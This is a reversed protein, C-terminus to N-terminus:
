VRGHATEAKWRAAARELRELTRERGLLWMVEFIGPSVKRGTLAVRAMGIIEGAKIALEAALSRTERELSELTFEPLAGLSRALAELRAGAEARELLEAWSAHDEEPLDGLAWAGYREADALTRLRDGIARVLARRWEPSRGELDHGRSALFAEVRSVREEEPLGKLHQSNIWELKELNFVAPNSGVRELSFSQELEALTFLERRGDLSWGLLALFNVLAEPLM